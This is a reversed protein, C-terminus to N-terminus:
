IHILSLFIRFTTGVGLDSEVTLHGGTQQVIGYVTALGLGTGKGQEKTTFFPEFIKAKVEDTMGTGTDSVDIVVFSDGQADKLAVLVSQDKIAERAVESSQITITGGGQAEMADRANVCLNMLVTDIQSKDAMVAPLGRAHIMKLQAREGLTQRLTM